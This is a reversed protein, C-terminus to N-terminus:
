FVFTAGLLPGALTASARVNESKYDVHLYRYGGSLWIQEAVRFNATAMVQGTFDSGVGFGGIDGYLLVSWRPSAKVNLRAAAVPDVFSAKASASLDLAPVTVKPRIWWARGGALLDLSLDDQDVARYGALATMSTQRLGGEAPVVPLAPNGTPVMADRSSSAHTFDAVAVFRDHKVLGSIFFAADIDKLLEGFSKDVQLSPAASGPRITGGFGSAWVYPTIQVTTGEDDAGFESQALAPAGAIMATVAFISAIVHKLKSRAEM